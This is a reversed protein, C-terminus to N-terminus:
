GSSTNIHNVISAMLIANEEADIDEQDRLDIGRRVKVTHIYKATREEQYIKDRFVALPFDDYYIPNSSWLAMPGMTKHKKEQIDAQLQQQADSGPWQIYGYHSYFSVFGHKTVYKEFISRDYKARKNNDKISKRISSLRASFKKYEWKSYEEHLMYITFLPMTTKGNADKAELPVTGNMIDDYLLRKAKSKAWKGEEQFAKQKPEEGIEAPDFVGEEPGEKTITFHSQVAYLDDSSNNTATTTTFIFVAQNPKSVKRREQGKLEVSIRTSSDVGLCGKPHVYRALVTAKAGIGPRLVKKKKAM